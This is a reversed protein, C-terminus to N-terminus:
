YTVDSIILMNPIGTPVTFCGKDFIFLRAAKRAFMYRVIKGNAIKIIHQKQIHATNVFALVTLLKRENCQTVCENSRYRVNWNVVLQWFVSVRRVVTACHSSSMYCAIYIYKWVHGWLLVAVGVTLQDNRIYYVDPTIVRSTLSFRKHVPKYLVFIM